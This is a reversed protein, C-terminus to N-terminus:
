KDDEKYPKPLEAWAIINDLNSDFKSNHFFYNTTVFLEEGLRFTILYEGEEKPKAVSYDHWIIESSNKRKM